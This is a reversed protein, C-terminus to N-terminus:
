YDKGLPSNGRLGGDGEKESWEYFYPTHRFVLAVFREGNSDRCHWVKVEGCPELVYEKDVHRIDHRSRRKKPIEVWMRKVEELERMEESDM